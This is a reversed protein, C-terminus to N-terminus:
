SVAGGDVRIEEGNLHAGDESAIMAIVGAVVDPERAGTIAAQRMLLKYDVDDPILQVNTMATEISAPCVANVRIGRKAYEIALSRTFASIAGKSSSYATGYPMGRLASSSSANVINGRTELLHPIAAQCMQFLGEVNVAYVKKWADLPIEGFHGYHIIGAINCLVDIKGFRDVCAAVAADISARDTVDCVRAEGMGEREGALKATEVVGDSVIDLCLVAAGEDALRLATARGIGSAAGTVIAVRDQFRSLAPSM